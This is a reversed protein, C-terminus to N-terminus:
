NGLSYDNVKMVHMCQRIAVKYFIGIVSGSLCHNDISSLEMVAKFQLSYSVVLYTSVTCAIFVKM